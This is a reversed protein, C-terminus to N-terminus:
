AVPLGAAPIVARIAPIIRAHNWAPSNGTAITHLATTKIQLKMIHGSVASVSILSHPNYLCGMVGDSIHATIMIDQRVSRAPRYSDATLAQCKGSLLGSSSRLHM